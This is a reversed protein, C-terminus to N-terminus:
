NMGTQKCGIHFSELGYTPLLSCCWFPHLELFSPLFAPLSVTNTVKMYSIHPSTMAAASNILVTPSLCSLTVSRHFPSVVVVSLSISLCGLLFFSQDANVLFFWQLSFITEGQYKILFDRHSRIQLSCRPLIWLFIDKNTLTWVTVKEKWHEYTDTRKGKM